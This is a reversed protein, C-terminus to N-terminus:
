KPLGRRFFMPVKLGRLRWVPETIPLRNKQMVLIFVFVSLLLNPMWVGALVPVKGEEVLWKSSMSIVYVGILAVIALYYASSKGKRVDTIGLVLGLFCFVIILFPGAIRQHYLYLARLYDKPDIKIKKNRAKVLFEHLQMPKYSRFDDRAEEESYFRQPFVKLLDIESRNFELTSSAESGPRTSVAYADELILKLNREEVSGEIYGSPAFLSFSGGGESGRPALIVHGLDRRDKSITEAYIVYGLFDDYFVGPQLKNKIVNDLETQSKQFIFQVLERRGWAEFYTASLVGVFYLGIALPFLRVVLRGLSFGAALLAPFEGDLCMRTMTAIVAFFLAIPMTYSLMPMIMFLLPLFVNELSLGFTVIIEALRAVQSVVLVMNMMLLFSFFQLLIEKIFQRMMIM